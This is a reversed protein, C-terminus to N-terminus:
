GPITPASRPTVHRDCRAQARNNASFPRWNAPRLRQMRGAAGAHASKAFLTSVVRRSVAFSHFSMKRRSSVHVLQAYIASRCRRSNCRKTRCPTTMNPSTGVRSGARFRRSSPWRTARGSSQQGIPKTGTAGCGVRNLFQSSDRGTVTARKTSFNGWPPPMSQTRAVDRLRAPLPSSDCRRCKCSM